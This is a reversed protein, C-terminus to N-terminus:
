TKHTAEDNIKALYFKIWLVEHYVRLRIRSVKQSIQFIFFFFRSNNMIVRLNSKKKKNKTFIRSSFDYIFSARTRSSKYFNFYTEAEQRSGSDEKLSTTTLVHSMRSINTQGFPQQQVINRAYLNKVWYLRIFGTTNVHM